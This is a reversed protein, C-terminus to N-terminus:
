TPADAPGEPDVCEPGGRDGRIRKPHDLGHHIRRILGLILGIEADDPGWRGSIGRIRARLQEPNRARTFGVRAALGMLGDVLREQQDRRAIPLIPDEEEAHQSGADGETVRMMEYAIILVAQSLNLSSLGRTPIRILAECRGADKTGLGFNEPGFVIAAPGAARRKLLYNAAARPELLPFKWHRDRATTGLVTVCDALAADLTPVCRAAELVDLAGPAMWRAREWDPAEDGVIYLESLGM